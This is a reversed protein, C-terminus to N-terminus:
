LDRKDQQRQQSREFHTPVSSRYIFPIRDIHPTPRDSPFSMPLDRDKYFKEFEQVLEDSLKSRLQARYSDIALILSVGYICDFERTITKTNEMLPRIRKLLETIHQDIHQDFVKHQVPTSFYYNFSLEDGIVIVGKTDRFRPENWLKKLAAVRETNQADPWQSRVKEYLIRIAREASVSESNAIVEVRSYYSAATSNDQRSAAERALEVNANLLRDAEAFPALAPSDVLERYANTSLKQDNALFACYGIRELLIVRMRLYDDHSKEKLLAQVSEDALRFQKTAHVFEGKAMCLNGLLLHCRSGAFSDPSVDIGCEAIRAAEPYNGQNFYARALVYFEGAAVPRELLGSKAQMLVRLELKTMEAVSTQMGEVLNLASNTILSTEDDNGNDTPHESYAWSFLSFWLFVIVYFRIM